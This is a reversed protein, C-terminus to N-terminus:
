GPRDARAGALMSESILNYALAWADALAASWQEGLQAALSALLADGMTRYQGARVGYGAHRAGLAAAHACFHDFDAIGSTITRLEVGFRQRQVVPDHTFMTVLTPDLTFARDYFDAALADLDVERVSTAVLDLQEPSVRGDL